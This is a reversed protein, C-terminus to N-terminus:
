LVINIRFGCKPCKDTKLFSRTTYGERQILMESCEPCYTNTDTRPTNGVYVYNLYEKAIEKCRLIKEVSTEKASFKYTPYYRSLHLPIDKNIQSIWKSLNGIEEDSDNYGTVVLTTVEVHCLANSAEINSLITNLDGRCVEKYFKDDFAKLDINIADVLPLLELLPENNIYGNSVLVNKLNTERSKKFTDYIFEYGILPENYTFAIGINESYNLAIDVLEELTLEQSEREYQSIQYNQCFGCKFNCGFSGISLIKSGPMFHYLPKKEIPDINASTVRGYNMSYLMGSKVERAKCIGRKGETIVCNHPCLNCNISSDLRKTYYQAEREMLEGVEM